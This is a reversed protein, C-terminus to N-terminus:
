EDPLVGLAAAEALLGAQRARLLAQATPGAAELVGEAELRQARLWAPGAVPAPAAVAPAAALTPLAALRARAQAARVELGAVQRGLGDALHRCQRQRRRLAAPDPPPAATGLPAVPPFLCTALLALRPLAALPLLRLGNEAQAVRVRHVGLCEAMAQQTWGFHTRVTLLLDDTTTM